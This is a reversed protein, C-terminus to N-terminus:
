DCALLPFFLFTIGSDAVMIRSLDCTAAAGMSEGGELMGVGVMVMGVVTLGCVKAAEEGRSRAVAAVEAERERVAALEHELM